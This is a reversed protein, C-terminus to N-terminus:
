ITMTNTCVNVIATVNQRLKHITPESVYKRYMAASNATSKASHVPTETKVAGYSDRDIWPAQGKREAQSQACSQRQM